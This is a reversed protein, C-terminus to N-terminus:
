TIEPAFECLIYQLQPYCMSQTGGAVGIQRTEIDMECDHMHNCIDIHDLIVHIGYVQRTAPLDTYYNRDPQPQEIGITVVKNSNGM